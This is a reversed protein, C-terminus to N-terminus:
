YIKHLYPKMLIFVPKIFNPSDSPLTGFFFIFFKNYFSSINRVTPGNELTCNISTFFDNPKTYRTKIFFNKMKQPVNGLSGGSTGDLVM